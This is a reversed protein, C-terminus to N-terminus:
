RTPQWMIPMQIVVRVNQGKYRGPRFRLLAIAKLTADSLQDNESELVKATGPSVTGDAEVVFQTLVTAGIGADKLLRPYFREMIKGISAKNSLEPVRDLMAVQYVFDPAAEPGAVAAPAGASAAPAPAAEPGVAGVGTFDDAKVAPASLDVAPITAPPTTPPTIAQTAPAPPAPAQQAAKPAVPETPKAAAPVPKVERLDVYELKEERTATAAQSKVTAYAVGALVAFHFLLSVTVTRANWSARKGGGSAPLQKFLPRPLDATTTTM